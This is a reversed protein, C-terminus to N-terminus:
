TLDIKVSSDDQDYLVINISNQMAKYVFAIFLFDEIIIYSKLRHSTELDIDM